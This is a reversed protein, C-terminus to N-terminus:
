DVYASEDVVIDVGDIKELLYKELRTSAERYTYLSNDNPSEFVCPSYIELELSEFREPDLEHLAYFLNDMSAGDQNHDYPLARFSIKLTRQNEEQSGEILLTKINDEKSLKIKM